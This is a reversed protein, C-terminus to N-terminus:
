PYKGPKFVCNGRYLKVTERDSGSEQHVGGGIDKGFRGSVGELARPLWFLLLVSPCVVWGKIDDNMVDCKWETQGFM